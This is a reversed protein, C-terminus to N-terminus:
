TASPRGTYPKTTARPRSELNSSMASAESPLTRKRERSSMPKEYRAFDAGNLSPASIETFCRKCDVLLPALELVQRMFGNSKDTLPREQPDVLM